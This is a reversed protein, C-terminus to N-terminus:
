QVSITPRVALKRLTAATSESAGAREGTRAERRHRKAELRSWEGL